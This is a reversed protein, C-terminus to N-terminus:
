HTQVNYKALINEDIEIKHRGTTTRLNKRVTDFTSNAFWEAFTAMVFSTTMDRGINVKEKGKNRSEGSPAKGHSTVPKDGTVMEKKAHDRSM